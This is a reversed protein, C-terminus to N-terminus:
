VTGLAADVEARSAPRGTLKDIMAETTEAAVSRVNAMASDRM